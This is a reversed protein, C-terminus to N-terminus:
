HRIWSLQLSIFKRSLVRPINSLRWLKRDIERAPRRFQHSRNQSIQQKFSAIQLALHTFTLRGCGYKFCSCVCPCYEFYATILHVIIRIQSSIFVNVLSNPVGPYNLPSFSCFNVRRNPKSHISTNSKCM